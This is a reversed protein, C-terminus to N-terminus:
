SVDLNLLLEDEDMFQLLVENLKENFMKYSDRVM